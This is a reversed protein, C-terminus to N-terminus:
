CMLASEGLTASVGQIRWVKIPDKIECFKERVSASDEAPAPSVQLRRMTSQAMSETWPEWRTTFAKSIAILCRGNLLTADNVGVM